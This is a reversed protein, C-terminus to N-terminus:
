GNSVEEEGEAVRWVGEVSIRGELRGRNELLIESPRTSVTNLAYDPAAGLSWAISALQRPSRLGYVDRAGSSIVLKLGKKYAVRVVRAAARFAEYGGELLDLLALELSNGAVEVIHRDIPPSSTNGVVVTDVRMDRVAAMLVDRDSTKVAVLDYRWRVARLRRYLEERSGAEITIRRYIELGYANALRRAESWSNDDVELAVGWYGLEHCSKLMDELSGRSEPRLWADVFKRAM